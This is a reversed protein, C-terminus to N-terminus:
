LSGVIWFRKFGVIERVERITKAASEQAKEKGM